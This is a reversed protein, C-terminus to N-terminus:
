VHKPLFVCSTFQHVKGQEGLFLLCEHLCLFTWRFIQSWDHKPNIKPHFVDFSEIRDEMVYPIDIINCQRM